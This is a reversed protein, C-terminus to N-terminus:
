LAHIYYLVICSISHVIVEYVLIQLHKM